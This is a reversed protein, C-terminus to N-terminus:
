KKLSEMMAHAQDASRNYANSQEPTLTNLNLTPAFRQGMQKLAALRHKGDEVGFSGNEPVTMLPAIEGGTKIFAKYADVRKPDTAEHTILDDIARYKVGPIDAIRVEPTVEHLAGLAMPLAAAAHGAMPLAHGAQGLAQLGHGIMGTAEGAPTGNALFDGFSAATSTSNSGDGPNGTFGKYFNGATSSIGNLLASLPNGGGAGPQGKSKPDGVSQSPIYGLPRQGTSNMWDSIGVDKVGNDTASVFRGNGTYIGTHGFNGNSQDPAFYVLDGPNIGQLGPRAKDQQAQWAAIASPYVGSHGLTAQEVFKQCFENFAQSGVDELASRANGPLSGDGSQGKSAEFASLLSKLDLGGQAQASGSMPSQAATPASILPQVAQIQPPIEDLAQQGQQALLSRYTRPATSYQSLRGDM